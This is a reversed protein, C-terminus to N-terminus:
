EVDWEGSLIQNAQEETDVVIELLGHLFPPTDLTTWTIMFMEKDETHVADSVLNNINIHHGNEVKIFGYTLYKIPPTEHLGKHILQVSHPLDGSFTVFTQSRNNNYILDSQNTEIVDDFNINSIDESYITAYTLENM